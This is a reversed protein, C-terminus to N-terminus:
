TGVAILKILYLVAPGVVKAVPKFCAGKSCSEISEDVGVVVEDQLPVVVM